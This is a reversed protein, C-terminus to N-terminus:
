RVRRQRIGRTGLLGGRFRLSAQQDTAFLGQLFDIAQMMVYYTGPDLQDEFSWSGRRIEVTGLLDLTKISFFPLRLPRRQRKHM